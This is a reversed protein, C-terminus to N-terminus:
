PVTPSVTGASPIVQGHYFAFGGAPLSLFTGWGAFLPSGTSGDPLKGCSSSECARNTMSGSNDMISLINPTTVSTIFPPSATYDSMVQAPQPASQGDARVTVAGRNSLRM